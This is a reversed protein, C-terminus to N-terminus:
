KSSPGIYLSIKEFLQKMTFPKVLIDRVGSEIASLADHQMLAGSMLIIPIKAYKNSKKLHGILDLGSRGPMKFDIIILDFVQNSLKLTATQAEGATVCQIDEEYMAIFSQLLEIIQPDDDIILIKFNKNKIM